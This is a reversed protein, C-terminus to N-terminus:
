KQEIIYTFKSIICLDYIQDIDNIYITKITFNALLKSTEM